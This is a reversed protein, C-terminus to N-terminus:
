ESTAADIARELLDSVNLENAWKNMYEYDLSDECTKLIGVIDRWQRDSIENGLRYWELKSLVTDEPSAFLATLAPKAFLQHRQARSLQSHLFPGPRPIFVDVKFMTERHIINFCVNRRISDGIAERSMHFEDDLACVFSDLHEPLMRAVIDADHTSRIIGYLSSALSGGILYPINMTEFVRTVKLTVELPENIMMLRGM